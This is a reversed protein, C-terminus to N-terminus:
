ISPRHRLQQTPNIEPAGAPTPIRVRYGTKWNAKLAVQVTKPKL